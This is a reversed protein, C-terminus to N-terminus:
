LYIKKVLKLFYIVLFVIENKKENVRMSKYLKQSIKHIIILFLKPM